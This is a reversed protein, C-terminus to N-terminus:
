EDYYLAHSIYRLYDYSRRQGSVLRKRRRCADTYEITWTGENGTWLGRISKWGTAIAESVGVDFCSAREYRTSQITMMDTTGVFRASSEQSVLEVTADCCNASAEPFYRGVVSREGGDIGVYGEWEDLM